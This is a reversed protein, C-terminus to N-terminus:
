LSSICRGCLTLLTSCGRIICQILGGIFNFQLLRIASVAEAIVDDPCLLVENLCLGVASFEIRRSLHKKSREIGIRFLVFFRIHGKGQFLVPCYQCDKIGYLRAINPCVPNKGAHISNIKCIVVFVSICIDQCDATICLDTFVSFLGPIHPFRSYIGSM